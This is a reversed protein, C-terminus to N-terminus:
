HPIYHENCKFHLHSPPPYNGASLTGSLICIQDDMAMTWSIEQLGQVGAKYFKMGFPSKSIMLIFIMLIHKILIHQVSWNGPSLIGSFLLEPKILESTLIWCLLIRCFIQVSQSIIRFLLIFFNKHTLYQRRSNIIWTFSSSVAYSLHSVKWM